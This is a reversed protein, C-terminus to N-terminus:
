DYLYGLGECANCEDKDAWILFSLIGFSCAAAVLADESIVKGKGKCKFCKIKSM